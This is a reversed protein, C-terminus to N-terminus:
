FLSLQHGAPNHVVEALLDEADFRYVRPKSYITELKVTVTRCEHTIHWLGGSCGHSAEYAYEHLVKRYDHGADVAAQAHEIKWDAFAHRIARQKIEEFEPLPRPESPYSAEDTHQRTMWIIRGRNDEYRAHWAGCGVFQGRNWQHRCDAQYTCVEEVSPFSEPHYENSYWRYKGRDDPMAKMYPCISM